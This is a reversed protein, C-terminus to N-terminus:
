TRNEKLEKFIEDTIKIAKQTVFPGSFLSMFILAESINKKSVYTEKLHMITQRFVQENHIGQAVLGALTMFLKTKAYLGFKNFTNGFIADMAEKPMTPWLKNLGEGTEGSMNIDASNFAEVALSVMKEFSNQDSNM